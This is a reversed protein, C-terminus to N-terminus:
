RHVSRPLVRTGRALGRDASRHAVGALPRHIAADSVLGGDGADIHLTAIICFTAIAMWFGHIGSDRVAANNAGAGQFATQLASYLDNSYYSLLIDVRVAAMVSLLLAGFLGWVPVSQRGTFYDGTIRWFEGGWQTFRALAVGVVLVCVASIAWAEVIWRSSAVLEHGWDISPTFKEM